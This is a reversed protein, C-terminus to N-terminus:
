RRGGEPRPWGQLPEGTTCLRHEAERRRVLGPLVQGGAKNWRLIEACAGAHDPPSQKLRRVLTSRCFAGVGINYALSAFADAEHQALPVPGICAAAARWHREADAALQLVARPPAMADGLRVPEGDGHRTTGFGVTAVGVPDLYARERYGEHLAIGGLALGSVTLLTAAFRTTNMPAM